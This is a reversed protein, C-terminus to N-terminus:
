DRISRALCPCGHIDPQALSLVAADGVPATPPSKGSSLRCCPQFEKGASQGAGVNRPTLTMEPQLREGEVVVVARNARMVHAWHFRTM